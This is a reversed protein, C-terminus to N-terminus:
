NWRNTRRLRYGVWWLAFVVAQWTKRLYRMM